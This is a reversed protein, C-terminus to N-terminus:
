INTYHGIAKTQFMKFGNLRENIFQKRKLDIKDNITEKNASVTFVKHNFSRINTQVSQISKIKSSLIDEFIQVNLEKADSDGKNKSVTKGSALMLTYCKSRLCVFKKIKDGSYEDKLTGLVGKNCDSYCKSLENNNKYGALDFYREVGNYEMEGYKFNFNIIFSDTDMYMLKSAPWKVKVVDYLLFYMHKKSLELIAFGIYVPKDFVPVVNRKGIMMNDTFDDFSQVSSNRILKQIKGEEHKSIVMLKSRKFVNEMTKGYVANNMLKFFNRQNEDSTQGRMMANFEIYPKLWAKQRFQLVRHVMKIELGNAVAQQLLSVHVRYNVKPLLTASLRGNYSEPLFPLETHKDHLSKPTEIDVEFVYGHTYDSTWKKLLDLPDINIYTNLEKKQIDTHIYVWSFEGVPLPQCMAFGYLNTVDYYFISSDGDEEAWKVESVTSVGGRIVGKESFFRVLEESKLLELKEGTFKMAADWALGPTTFYHCPDLGYNNLSTVRFEEFVELLLLVDIRLYFMMYEKINRFGMEDFVKLAGEIENRSPTSKKLSSYWAETETPLRENELIDISKVYEYPFCQKGKCNKGVDLSLNSKMAKNGIWKYESLRSSLSDLSGLLFSM